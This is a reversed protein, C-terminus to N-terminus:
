AMQLSSQRETPIPLSDRFKFPAQLICFITRQQGVITAPQLPHLMDQSRICRRTTPVVRKISATELHLRRVQKFVGRKFAEFLDTM